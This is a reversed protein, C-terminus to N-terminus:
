FYLDFVKDLKKANKAFYLLCKKWFISSLEDNITQIKFGIVYESEEHFVADSYMSIKFNEPIKLPDGPESYSDYATSTYSFNLWFLPVFWYPPM